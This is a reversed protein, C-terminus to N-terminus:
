ESIWPYHEYDYASAWGTNLEGVQITYKSHCIYPGGLVFFCLRGVSNSMWWHCHHDLWGWYQSVNKLVICMGQERREGGEGWEM